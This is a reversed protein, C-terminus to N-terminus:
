NLDYEENHLYEPQCTVNVKLAKLTKKDGNDVIYTAHADCDKLKPLISLAKEVIPNTVSCISLATLVETLNLRQQAYNLERKLNLMPELVSPALLNIDDPIKTLEKMANIILSSAPTLIDTQKGTIIKRGVKLSMVPKNEHQSKDLAPKIVDLYNEDINLENMLLKIKKFSDEDNMGLKIYNKALSEIMIQVYLCETSPNCSLAKEYYEKSKEYEDLIYESQGIQFLTYPDDPKKELLAHLIDLNRQQKLRMQEPSIDYGWHVIESPIVFSEQTKSRNEIKKDVIQEHIPEEYVYYSRNYMRIIDDSSFGKEGNPKTVISKLRIIGTCKPFKQMFIRLTSVDLSNVYEDCDLSLIWNNSANAACFNRAASFDNIWEFDLVKDAYKAAIEKTKDTSGTDTVIIEFGYPKLRKLCEEIYREENKAIICVSIPLKSM